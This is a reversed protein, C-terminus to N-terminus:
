LGIKCNKTIEFACKGQIRKKYEKQRIRKMLEFLRNNAADVDLVGNSNFMAEDEDFSIMNAYFKRIDFTPRM